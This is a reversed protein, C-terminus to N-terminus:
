SDPINAETIAGIQIGVWHHPLASLFYPNILLKSLNFELLFLFFTVDM